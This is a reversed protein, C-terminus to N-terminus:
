KAFSPDPTGKFCNMVWPFANTVYYGYVGNVTMGNCEDLDGSSAVYEYDDRFTGDYTGGPAAGETLGGPLDAIDRTGSRLSYSSQVERITGGDDIYPGYIPYGDAAFGIVPSASTPSDNDFMALPNGHYHYAGTPQTHANHNDTGFDNGSFMPDYRWAYTLQFCGIKEQGLPDPGVGYCAAPLIDLKAGNLFIANDYSLSLETTSGADTPAATVTYTASVEAIATRFSDENNVDHNPISNTAFTCENNSTAIVLSGAFATNNGLDTIASKFSGVYDACDGSTRTFTANTIDTIGTSTDGSDSGSSTTTTADDGCATFLCLLLFLFHPLLSHIIKKM